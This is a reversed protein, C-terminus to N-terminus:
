GEVCQIQEEPNADHKLVNFIADGYKTMIHLPFDVSSEIDNLSPLIDGCYLRSNYEILGEESDQDPLLYSFYGDIMGYNARTILEFIHDKKEAPVRLPCVTRTHVSFKGNDYTIFRIIMNCKELQNNMSFNLEIAKSSTSYEWGQSDLYEEVRKWLEVGSISM